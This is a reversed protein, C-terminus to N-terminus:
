PLAERLELAMDVLVCCTPCDPLARREGRELALVDGTVFDIISIRQSWDCARCFVSVRAEDTAALRSVANWTAHRM